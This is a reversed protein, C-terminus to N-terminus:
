KKQALIIINYQQYKRPVKTMKKKKKRKKDTSESEKQKGEKRRTKSLYIQCVARYLNLTYLM